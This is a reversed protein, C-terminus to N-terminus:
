DKINEFDNATNIEEREDIDPVITPKGEKRVILDKLMDWEKTRTLVNKLAKEMQTPSLLSRSYIVADSLKLQKAARKVAEPDAWERNGLRGTVLKYGDLKGGNNFLDIVQNKIATVWLDVLGVSEYKTRLNINSVPSTAWGHTLDEFDSGIVEQVKDDFAKCHPKAPCWRCASESPNFWKPDVIGTTKCEAILERAKVAASMFGSRYGQVVDVPVTWQDINNIRPQYICMTVTRVIGLQDYGDLVALAYMILQRNEKATVKVGAGYKLDIVYLHTGTDSMIVADATGIAVEGTIGVLPLEQEVSVVGAGHAMDLVYSVYGRLNDVMDTDTYWSFDPEAKDMLAKVLVEAAISHARTGEDAAASSQEERIAAGPWYRITASGQCAVWRHASSPSFQAHAAM